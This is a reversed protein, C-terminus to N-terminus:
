YRAYALLGSGDNRPISAFYLPTSQRAVDLKDFSLVVRDAAAPSEPEAADILVSREVGRCSGTIRVFGM